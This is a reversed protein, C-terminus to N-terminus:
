VFVPLNQLTVNLTGGSTSALFIISHPSKLSQFLFAVAIFGRLSPLKETVIVKGAFV